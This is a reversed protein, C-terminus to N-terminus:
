ALLSNKVLTLVTAAFYVHFTHTKKIDEKLHASIIDHHTLIQYSPLLPKEFNLWNVEQSFKSFSWPKTSLTIFYNSEKFQGKKGNSSCQRFCFNLDVKTMDWIIYDKFIRFSMIVLTSFRVNRNWCMPGSVFCWFSIQTWILNLFFFQCMLYFVSKLGWFELLFVESGACKARDFTGKWQKM